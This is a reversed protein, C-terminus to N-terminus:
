QVVTSADGCRPPRPPRPPPPPPQPSPVLNPDRYAMVKAWDSSSTYALYPAGTTPHLALSTFTDVWAALFAASGVTSWASGDFTVVTAKFSPDGNIGYQSDAVYPAYTTPHLALSTYTVEGGSFGASGVTNWNSGNFTKVTARYSNAVDRYAVWPAGTTPHIVLSIYVAIWDSFGASGVTNWNTSGDFTVVRIQQISNDYYAVYPAGTTPHLALSTYQAMGSTYPGIGASIGATGVTSWASNAFTMVTPRTSTGYDIYAVYPAYTTPHLALSIYDARGASFGANGVSMWDGGDDFTMVTAKQSNAYDSYAVYPAGTTPHLALSTYTAQGASFGASGVNSWATGDFTRVTAKQSNGGDVYAVYPAGTTPHMALSNFAATGGASTEAAWSKAGM